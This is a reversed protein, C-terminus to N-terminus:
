QLSPKFFNQVRNVANSDLSCEMLQHTSAQAITALSGCGDMLVSGEHRSVDVQQIISFIADESLLQQQVQELRERIVHSVEKCTVKVISLMCEACENSNHAPLFHLSASMYRQQLASIVKQENAGLMPAVLLVYCKHHLESFKSLRHALTHDVRCHDKPPWETLAESIPVMM